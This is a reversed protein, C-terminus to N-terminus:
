HVIMRAAVAIAEQYMQDNCLIEMERCLLQATSRNRVPLVRGRHTDKGLRAEALLNLHDDSRTVSFSAAKALRSRLEVQVLKGPSREGRAVRQLEVSIQDGSGQSEFNFSIQEDRQKTPQEHALKWGLRSALWGAIFLAFLLTVRARM